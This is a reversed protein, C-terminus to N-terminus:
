SKHVKRSMPTSFFGDYEEEYLVLSLIGNGPTFHTM